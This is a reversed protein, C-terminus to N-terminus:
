FDDKEKKEEVPDDINFKDKDIWDPIKEFESDSSSVKDQEKM